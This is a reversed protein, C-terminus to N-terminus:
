PGHHHHQQLDPEIDRASDIEVEPRGQEAMFDAREWLRDWDEKTEVTIGEAPDAEIARIENFEKMLDVLEEVGPDERERSSYYKDVTSRDSRGELIALRNELIDLQDQLANERLGYDNRIAELEAERQNKNFEILWDYEGNISRDVAEKQALIDPDTIEVEVPDNLIRKDRYDYGKKVLQGDRNIDYWERGSDRLDLGPTFLFDFFEQITINESNYPYYRTTM